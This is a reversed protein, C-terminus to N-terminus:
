LATALITLSSASCANPVPGPVASSKLIPPTIIIIPNVAEQLPQSGGGGARTECRGVRGPEGVAARGGKRREQLEAAMAGPSCDSLLVLLAWQPLLCPGSFTTAPTHTPTSSPQWELPLSHTLSSTVSKCTLAQLWPTLVHSHPEPSPWHGGM